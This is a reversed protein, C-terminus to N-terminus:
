CGSDEEVEEEGLCLALRQLVDFVVEATADCLELLRCDVVVEVVVVILDHQRQFVVFQKVALLLLRLLVKERRTSIM